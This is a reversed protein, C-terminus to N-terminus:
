GQWFPIVLSFQCPISTLIHSLPVIMHFSTSVSHVDTHFNKLFISYSPACSGTVSDKSMNVFPGLEEWLSQNKYMNRSAALIIYGLDTPAMLLSCVIAFKIHGLVPSLWPWSAPTPQYPSRPLPPLSSEPYCKFHIYVFYRIFFVWLEKFFLSFTGICLPIKNLYFTFSHFKWCLFPVLFVIISFSTVSHVPLNQTLKVCPPTRV